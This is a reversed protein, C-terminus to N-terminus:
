LRVLLGQHVVLFNPSFDTFYRVADLRNHSKAAALLASEARAIDPDNVAKDANDLYIWGGPKVKKVATEACEGRLWGDVLVLDFSADPCDLGRSFDRTPIKRYDVNNLGRRAIESNMMDFWLPDSELSVVHGAKRAFWLTSMGSGFELVRSTQPNLFRAFERAARYSLWPQAPRRGTAMRWLTSALCRPFFALGAIDIRNGKEDHFRSKNLPGPKWLKSLSAM